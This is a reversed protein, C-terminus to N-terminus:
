GCPMEKAGCEEPDLFRPEGNRARCHAAAGGGRGSRHGGGSHGGGGRCRGAGGGRGGGGAPPGRSVGGEETRASALWRATPSVTM